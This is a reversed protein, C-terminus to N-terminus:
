GFPRLNVSSTTSMASWTTAPSSASGFTSPASAQLAGAFHGFGVFRPSPTGPLSLGNESV